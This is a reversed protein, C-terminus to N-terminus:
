STMLSDDPDEIILLDLGYNIFNEKVGEVESSGCVIATTTLNPDEFLSLYKLALRQVDAVSVKSLRKVFRRNYYSDVHRLSAKVSSSGLDEITEEKEAWNYSQIIERFKAYAEILQSSRTFSVRLKGETVSSSMSVGYTLGEGRIEDYMRDSLYQLMVRMTAVEQDEWDKQDYPISQKLYCSSSGPVGLIAHRVDPNSDQYYHESVTPFRRDLRTSEEAQPVSDFLDIWPQAPSDYMDTLRDLSTAMQVFLNKPKLIKDVLSHLKAILVGPNDDIEENIQKLFKLQRLASSFYISTRNNFFLNDFLTSSM